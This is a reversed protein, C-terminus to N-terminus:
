GLSQASVISTKEGPVFAFWLYLIEALSCKFFAEGEAVQIFLLLACLCVFLESFEWLLFIKIWHKEM